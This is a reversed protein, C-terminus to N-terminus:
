ATAVVSARTNCGCSAMNMDFCNCNDVEDIKMKGGMEIRQDNRFSFFEFVSSIFSFDILRFASRLYSASNSLQAELDEPRISRLFGSQKRSEDTFCKDFGRKFAHIQDKVSDHLIWETYLRVYEERDEYKVAISEGGPKLEAAVMAGFSEYAASFTLGMDSSNFTQEDMTVNVKCHLGAFM